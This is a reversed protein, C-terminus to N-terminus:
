VVGWYEIEDISKGGTIIQNVLFL